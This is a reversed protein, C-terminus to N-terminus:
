VQKLDLQSELIRTNNVFPNSVKQVPLIRMVIEASLLVTLAVLGALAVMEWVLKLCKLTVVNGVVEALFILWREIPPLAECAVFVTVTVVVTVDTTLM